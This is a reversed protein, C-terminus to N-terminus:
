VNVAAVCASDEIVEGVGPVAGVPDVTVNMQVADLPAVPYESQSPLVTPACSKCSECSVVSVDAVALPSDV